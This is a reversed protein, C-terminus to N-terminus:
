AAPLARDTFEVRSFGAALFLARLAREASARAKARLAADHEVDAKIEWRAKELLSATGASDLNSRVVETEGPRIEVSTTVPPLVLTVTEGSVVISGAELKSVDLGLHADAFVIARGEPPDATYLAWTAMQGLLSDAPQPDPQFAVKKYVAVDLSELRAVERVREILAPPDPLQRGRTPHVFAIFAVIAGAAAVAGTFLGFLLTRLHAALRAMAHM